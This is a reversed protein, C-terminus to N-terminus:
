HQLLLCSWNAGFGFNFLLVLDDAKLEHRDEVDRFNIFNDAAVVHGIPAINESFLLETPMRCLGLLIQWSRLSVNHPVIHSLEEPRLGEEHLMEQMIARATPFYAAILEFKRKECDWYFGKTKQKQAVIKNKAANKEVLLACAGDSILSYFIERKSGPPLVDAGVVLVRQSEPHAHLFDTACRVATMMAGCGTQSVGFANANVLGLSDHLATAPYTFNAMLGSRQSISHNCTLAGAYILLDISEPDISKEELLRQACEQALAASSRRTVRCSAFGFQHLQEAPSDLLGQEELAELSLTEEGLTYEIATIGNNM